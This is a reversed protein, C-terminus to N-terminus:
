EVTQIASALAYRGPIVEALSTDALCDKFLKAAMSLNRGHRRLEDEVLGQLDDAPVTENAALIKRIIELIETKNTCNSGKVSRAERTKTPKSRGVLKTPRNNRAEIEGILGEIETLEARKADRLALLDPVLEAFAAHLAEYRERLTVITPKFENV